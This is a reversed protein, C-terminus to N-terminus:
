SLRVQLLPTKQVVSSGIAQYRVRYGSVTTSSPRDLDAAGRWVVALSDKTASRVHVRLGRSGSMTDEDTDHEAMVVAAPPAKDDKRRRVCFLLGSKLGNRAAVEPM